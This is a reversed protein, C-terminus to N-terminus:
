SATVAWSGAAWSGAPVNFAIVQGSTGGPLVGLLASNFTPSPVEGVQQYICLIGTAAKPEEATGPCKTTEGEGEKLFVVESSAHALPVTFSIAAFELNETGAVGVTWTGTETNGIPLTGGATWPSGEKGPAGPVGSTGPAGTAGADGRAGADGKAGAAGGPGAPGAPGQKGAYKKAEKQAIKTVQKEQSKTLGGAAYAGGTLAAVLAVISIVFGATGLKQHIRNFM